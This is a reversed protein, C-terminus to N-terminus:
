RVECLVTNTDNARFLLLCVQGLAHSNGATAFLDKSTVPAFDGAKIQPTQENLFAALERLFIASGRDPGYNLVDVTNSNQTFVEATAAALVERGLLAENPQGKNFEILGPKAGHIPEFDGQLM